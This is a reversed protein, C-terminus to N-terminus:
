ASQVRSLLEQANAILRDAIAEANVRYTGTSIAMQMQAVKEADFTPDSGTTGDTGSLLNTATSSLTVTASPSGTAGDIKAVPKAEQGETAVRTTVSSAVSSASTDTATNIKM